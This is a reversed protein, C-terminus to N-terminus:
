RPVEKVAREARQVLGLPDHDPEDCDKPCDNPHHDANTGREVLLARVIRRLDLNSSAIEDAIVEDVISEVLVVAKMRQVNIRGRDGGCAAVYDGIAGWLRIKEELTM